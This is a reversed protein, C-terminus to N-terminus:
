NQFTSPCLGSERRLYSIFIPSTACQAFIAMVVEENELTVGLPFSLWFILEKRKVLSFLPNYLYLWCVKQCIGLREREKV